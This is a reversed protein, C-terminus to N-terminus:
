LNYETAATGLLANDSTDTGLQLKQIYNYRIKHWTECITNDKIYWKMFNLSRNM